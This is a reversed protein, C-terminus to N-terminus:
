AARRPRTLRTLGAATAALGLVVVAAGVLVNNLVTSTTTVAGQVVFPSIILWVGIVPATWAMGHTRGYASAFGVALLALAIGTVLNNATLTTFNNFGAVWPSIAAYLGALFTLGDVLQAVPTEAAREYRLRLATLDPHEEISRRSVGATIGGALAGAGAAPVAIKAAKRGTRYDRIRWGRGKAYARLTADPNIACPHGVLSLLPIDNASDSYASCRELDLGERVALARVADAKAPGHLPEGVLWGTYRGDVIEAVTGLAGILGLRAAIVTAVEVPTASVLWVRQGYGLHMRALARTGPWIRSAMHADFIEEGAQRLEHVDHGAIFSLAAKRVQDMHAMDEAGGLVYNAQMYAFRAIDRSTFFNRAYLGQALYFMSSGRVITNDVDFFAAARPDPPSPPAAAVAEDEIRARARRRRAALTTGRM